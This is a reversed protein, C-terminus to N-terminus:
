VAEFQFNRFKRIKRIRFICFVKWVAALYAKQRTSNIGGVTRYTSILNGTLFWIFEYPKRDHHESVM